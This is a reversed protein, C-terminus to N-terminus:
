RVEQKREPASVESSRLDSLTRYDFKPHCWYKYGNLAKEHPRDVLENLLEKSLGTFSYTEGDHLWEM